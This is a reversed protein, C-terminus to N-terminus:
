RCTIAFAVRTVQGISVPVTQQPGASALCHNPVNWLIVQHQVERLKDFRVVSNANVTRDQCTYYYCYADDAEVVRMSYEAPRNVGTTTITVEISGGPCTLSFYVWTSLGATVTAERPNPDDIFCAGSDIHLRVSHNGPTLDAVVVAGDMTNMVPGGDVSVGFHNFGPTAVVVRISGTTWAQCTVTFAVATVAGAVVTVGSVADRPSCNAAVGDLRVTHNGPTVNSYLLAAGPAVFRPSETDVSIMFGDDPDMGTVAVVVVISGPLPPPPVVPATPAEEACALVLAAFASVAAGMATIPKKAGNTTAAAPGVGGAIRPLVTRNTM